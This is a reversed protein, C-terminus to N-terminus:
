TDRAPRSPVRLFDMTLRTEEGAERGTQKLGGVELSGRAGFECCDEACQEVSFRRARETVWGVVRSGTLARFNKGHRELIKAFINKYNKRNGSKVSRYETEM